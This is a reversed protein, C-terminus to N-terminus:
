RRRRGQTSGERHRSSHLRFLTISCLHLLTSSLQGTNRTTQLPELPLLLSPPALKGLQESELASPSFSNSVLLSHDAESQISLPDITPTPSPHFRVEEAEVGDQISLLISQVTKAHNGHPKDDRVRLIKWTQQEAAWTVEVVQDDYQM